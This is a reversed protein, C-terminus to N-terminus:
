GLTKVLVLSKRGHQEYKERRLPPLDDPSGEKYGKQKFYNIAQTSLCFVKAIGRGRAVGEAYQILKGGIGQNEYRADVFVSAVEAMNQDPYM